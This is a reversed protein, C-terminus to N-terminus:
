LMDFLLSCVFPFSRQATNVDRRSACKRFLSLAFAGSANDVRGMDLGLNQCKGSRQVVFYPNLM